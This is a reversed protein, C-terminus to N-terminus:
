VPFVASSPQQNASKANIYLEFPSALSPSSGRHSSTLAASTCSSCCSGSFSQLAITLAQAHENMTVTPHSFHGAHLDRPETYICDSVCVSARTLGQTNAALGQQRELLLHKRAHSHVLRKVIQMPSTNLESTGKMLLGTQWGATQFINQLPTETPPTNSTTTGGARRNERKFQSLGKPLM